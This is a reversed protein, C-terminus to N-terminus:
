STLAVLNSSSLAVPYYSLKRIHGTLYSATGPFYGIYLTDLNHPINVNVNTVFLIGNATCSVAGDKFSAAQKIPQTTASSSTNIVYVVNLRVLLRATNLTGNGYFAIANNNSAGINYLTAAGNNNVGNDDSEAYLTGQAQNYWSSFNTGTMSAQDAARTVTSAVTPIYSTAFAGAELQAGWIYIGSYDDGTYVTNGSNDYIDFQWFGSTSATTATATCRYWGNGVPTISSTGTGSVNTSTGSTLNFKVIYISTTAQCNLHITNYEGAKFYGSWTYSAGSAVTVSKYLAHSGSINTPIIKSATLTGDPAIITNINQTTRVFTFGSAFQSQLILNTRSEEILLGLSNRTIPDCDFRAVGSPATMLKPIYNTIASTTTPTYATASSRQELQAGWLYVGSTGNGAYVATGNSPELYVRVATGATSITKTLTCRYWGNGVSVISTTPSGLTTGVTGASIDYVAATVSGLLEIEIYNYGNPKAFFSVTYTTGVSLTVLQSIYHAGNTTTPVINNATSTEDPATSANITMTTNLTGWQGALNVYQQSYVFLNQEALATTQGDYYTATSNRVFTIRPDLQKTNAFDLNLSPQVTPYAGGGGGFVATEAPYTVFVDKTGATFSVLNNSNSSKLVTTRALTNGSSTYTGIGVEWNAGIQDAITYYCTNGNGIVSFAQYGTIAGLLTATGTGVVTTSERVRDNVILAM